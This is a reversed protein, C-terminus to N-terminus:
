NIIISNYMSICFQKIQQGSQNGDINQVENLASQYLDNFGQIYQYVLDPNNGINGLLMNYGAVTTMNPRTNTGYQVNPGDLASKCQQARNIRGKLGYNSTYKFDNSWDRAFQITVTTTANIAISPCNVTLSIDNGDFYYTNEKNFDGYFIANYPVNNGNCQVAKPPLVNYIKFSYPRKSPFGNYNGNSNVNGTFTYSNSDYTWDIITEVWTNMKENNNLYDTTAGDDEYLPLSIKQGDYDSINTSPYIDFRLRDYAPRNARGLPDRGFPLIPIIANAKIYIPIEALSFTRNMYPKGNINQIMYGSTKEYFMDNPPLYITQWIPDYLDAYKTIPSVVINDGFMYQQMVVSNYTPFSNMTNPYDIYMSRVLNLGTIYSHYTANYIYPLLESREIIARREIDYYQYPHEWIDPESCGNSNLDCGGTGSGKDHVRFIPSYAGFQIWRTNLPLDTGDNGGYIDHSWGFLVNAATSTFYPLYNLGDWNHRQDGSFGVPYRHNGYGGCRALVMTRINNGLRINNTGRVYSLIYTPSLKYGLYIGNMGQQWDIWWVDFGHDFEGNNPSPAPESIPGLIIDQITMMYKYDTINPPITKGDTVGLAAAAETYNQEIPQIGNDDHINAATKLNKTEHFWTQTINPNPFM